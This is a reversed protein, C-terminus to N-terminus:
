APSISIMLRPVSSGPLCTLEIGTKPISGSIRLFLVRSQSLAKPTRNQQFGPMRTRLEKLLRLREREAEGLEEALADILGIDQWHTSYDPESM